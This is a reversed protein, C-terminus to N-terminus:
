GGLFARQVDGSSLIEASSGEMSTRGETIVYARSALALAHTVNQEVLVVSTGSAGIARVLAFIELTIKPSLGLSPEDMLLITPQSMLARAIAVIQQQGGSLSGAYRKRLVPLMAFRDYMAAVREKAGARVRRVHAGMLLNEEVTMDRFLNRGEPVMALGREVIASPSRGALPTGDFVVTGGTPRVIGVIARLTTTKGAGNAGVISVIEGPRVVFSVDHLVKFDGYQARLGEVRLTGDGTTM